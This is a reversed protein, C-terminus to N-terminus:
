WGMARGWSDVAIRFYVGNRAANQIPCDDNKDIYEDDILTWAKCGDNKWLINIM